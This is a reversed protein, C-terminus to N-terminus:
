IREAADASVFESRCAVLIGTVDPRLLYKRAKVRGMWYDHERFKRNFFGVFAALGSGMLDKKEDAIVAIIKM